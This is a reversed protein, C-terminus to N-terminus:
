RQTSAFRRIAPLRPTAPITGAGRHKVYSYDVHAKFGIPASQPIETYLTCQVARHSVPVFCQSGKEVMPRRVHVVETEVSRKAKPSTPSTPTDEEPLSLSSVSSAEDDYDKVSCSTRFSAETSEELRATVAVPRISSGVSSASSACSSMDAASSEKGASARSRGQVSNVLDPHLESIPVATIKVGDSKRRGVVSGIGSMVNQFSLRRRLSSLEKPSTENVESISSSPISVNSPRRSFRNAISAGFGHSQNTSNSPRRSGQPLSPPPAIQMQEKMLLANIEVDKVRLQESVEKESAQAALAKENSSLVQKHLESLRSILTAKWEDVFEQWEELSQVARESMTAFEQLIQNQDISALDDRLNDTFTLVVDEIAKFIHKSGEPKLKFTLKTSIRLAPVHFQLYLPTFALAIAETSLLPISTM